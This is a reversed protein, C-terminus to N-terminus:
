LKAIKLYKPEIVGGKVVILYYRVYAFRRHLKDDCVSWDIPSYDIDDIGNLYEDPYLNKLM